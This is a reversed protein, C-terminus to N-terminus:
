ASACLSSFFGPALVRAGLLVDTTLDREITRYSYRSNCKQIVRTFPEANDETVPSATKTRTTAWLKFSSHNIVYRLM